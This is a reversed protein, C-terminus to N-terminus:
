KQVSRKYQLLLSAYQRPRAKHPRSKKPVGKRLPATIGWITKFSVKFRKAITRVPMPNDRDLYLRIIKQIQEQNLATRHIDM